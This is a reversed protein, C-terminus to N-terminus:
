EVGRASNITEKTLVVLGYALIFLPWGYMMVYCLMNMADKFVM